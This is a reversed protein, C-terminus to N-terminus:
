PDSSYLAKVFRAASERVDEDSSERMVKEAARGVTILKPRWISGAKQVLVEGMNLARRVVRTSGRKKLSGELVLVVRRTGNFPSFIYM